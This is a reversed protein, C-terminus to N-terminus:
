FSEFITFNKNFKVTIEFYNSMLSSLFYFLLFRWFCKWPTRSIRGSASACIGLPNQYFMQLDNKCVIVFSFNHESLFWLYMGQWNWPYNGIQILWSLFYYMYFYVAKNYVLKLPRSFIWAFLFISELCIWFWKYFWLQDGYMSGSNIM